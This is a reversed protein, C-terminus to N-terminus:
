GFGAQQVSPFLWAERQRRAWTRADLFYLDGATSGSNRSFRGKPSNATLITRAAPKERWFRDQMPKAGCDGNQVARAGSSHGDTAQTSLCLRSTALSETKRPERYLGVMLEGLHSDGIRSACLWM